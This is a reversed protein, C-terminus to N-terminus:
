GKPLHGGTSLIAEVTDIDCSATAGLEVLRVPAYDRILRRAGTDGSLTEVAAAMSAPLIVPNRTASRDTAAVVTGPVFAAILADIDATDLLPMDAPVMMVGDAPMGAAFGMKVSGSLGGEHDPNVLIRTPLEEILPRLRHADHGLVTVIGALRSAALRRIIRVIQPVDAYRALLKHHPATRSSRGAALVVAVVEPPM